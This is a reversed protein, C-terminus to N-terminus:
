PLQAELGKLSKDEIREARVYVPAYALPVFEKIQCPGTILRDYFCHRWEGPPFWLESQGEPDTVPAVLLADGLMYQLPRNFAQEEEPFEYYMPRCLGVGSRNAEDALRQLYAQLLRRFHLFRRMIDLTTAKFRWPERIGHDSHLRMIPSLCGFQTWRVMLDDPPKNQKWSTHGPYFGGIDHSEYALLANSALPTIRVEHELVPWQSLTDGTFHLTSRHAGLGHTRSLVVEDHDGPRHRKKKGAICYLENLWATADRGKNDILTGDVWWMDCGGEQEIPRHFVDMYADAQQQDFLDVEHRGVNYEHLADAAEVKNRQAGTKRLFEPLRTDEAPLYQPHV